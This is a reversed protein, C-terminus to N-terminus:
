FLNLTNKSNKLNKILVNEFEIVQDFDQYILNNLNLQYSYDTNLDESYFLCNDMKLKEKVDVLNIPEFM